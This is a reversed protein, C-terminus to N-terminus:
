RGSPWPIEVIVNTGAGPRSQIRCEGGIEAARERMNRLGDATPNEVIHEFGRGNDEVIVRLTKASTNVRLWVETAGSHKVINQLAEKIVLFLNHRVDSAVECPPLEEPVDLLCRIGAARLYGTAFQGAYDVLHALTDNRPNVAWVIEDLSTVAQRATSSMREIREDTKEKKALDGLVAILNLSAGLDDHIDRAIRTREREVTHQRELQQMRWRLRRLSVTRITIATTGLVVIAALLRFWWTEYFHPLVRLRLSAGTENWVGDSNAAIVHFRYDGAPLLNFQISRRPGADIWNTGAGELWYRFQVRDSAVLSLGTYRFELQHKGPPVELWPGRLNFSAGVTAPFASAAQLSGTPDVNKGDVLIEEIAVPPPLRNPRIDQPQISVAGKVTTFWLRG